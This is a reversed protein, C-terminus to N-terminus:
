PIISLQSHNLVGKAASSTSSSMTIVAYYDDSCLLMSMTISKNIWGYVNRECIMAGIGGRCEARSTTGRSGTGM